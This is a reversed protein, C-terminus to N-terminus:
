KILKSIIKKKVKLSGKSSFLNDLLIILEGMNNLKLPPDIVFIIFAESIRKMLNRDLQTIEEKNYEHVILNRKKYLSPIFSKLYKDKVVKQIIKIIHDDIKKGGIKLIRELIIWFKLFSFELNEDIMAELYLRLSSRSLEQIKREQKSIKKLIFILLLYNGSDKKNHINWFHKGVSTVEEQKIQYDIRRTDDPYTIKKNEVLLFYKELINKSLSFDEFSMYKTTARGYNSAFSIAGLFSDINKDVAKSSYDEDRAQISVKLLNKRNAILAKLKDSEIQKCLYKPLTVIEVKTSAKVYKKLDKFEKKTLQFDVRLPIYYTLNRIPIARVKKVHENLVKLFNAFTNRKKSMSLKVLLSHIITHFGHNLNGYGAKLNEFVQKFNTKQYLHELILVERKKIDSINYGSLRAPKLNDFLDISDSILNDLEEINKTSDHKPSIEIM